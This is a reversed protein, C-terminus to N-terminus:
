SSCTLKTLVLPKKEATQFSYNKRHQADLCRWLPGSHTPRTRMTEFPEISALGPFGPFM